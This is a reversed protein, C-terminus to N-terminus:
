RDPEVEVESESEPEDEQGRERDDPTSLINGDEDLVFGLAELTEDTSRAFGEAHDDRVAEMTETFTEAGPEGDAYRGFGRRWDSAVEATIRKVTESFSEGERKEARLREYAAEDLSITKTGM